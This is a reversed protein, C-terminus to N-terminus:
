SMTKTIIKTEIEDIMDLCISLRCPEGYGVRDNAEVKGIEPKYHLIM